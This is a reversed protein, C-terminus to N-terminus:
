QLKIKLTKDNVNLAKEITKLVEDKHEEYWEKDSDIVPYEKKGKKGLIGQRINPLTVAETLVKFRNIFRQIDIIKM